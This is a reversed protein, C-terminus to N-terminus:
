ISRAARPPRFLRFPTHRLRLQAVNACLSDEDTFRAIAPLASFARDDTLDEILGVPDAPAGDDDLDAFTPDDSTEEWQALDRAVSTLHGANAAVVGLTAALLLLLLRM